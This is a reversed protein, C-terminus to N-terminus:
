MTGRAHVQLLAYVMETVPIQLGHQRARSVIAGQILEVELPRAQERDRQMSSKMNPALSGLTQLVRALHEETLHVGEARGVTWVERVMQEVLRWTEPQARIPGIPEQLITTFGSMTALLMLKLWLAQVMDAALTVQIGAAQLADRLQEGRPSLGGDLEGFTLTAFRSPNVIRGPADIYAELACSGGLVHRGYRHCLRYPADLGNLLPIILTQPGVLPGIAPVSTDLDPGKVCLLVLDCPGIEDPRDTAPVQVTFDGASASEVRLGNALLAALHAGRAILHVDHGSRALLGGFFGGTAGAGFVGVKM